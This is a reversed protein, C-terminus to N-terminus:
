PCSREREEKSQAAPIGGHVNRVLEGVGGAPHIELSEQLNWDHLDMLARTLADGWAAAVLTSGMAITEGPDAGQATSLCVFIDCANALASESREGIGVISAGRSRALRCLDVVEKSEGTKSLAVLVDGAQVAGVTGHLADMSHIFMSPTGTVSLLHAMRRAVHSSTGSGTVLVKGQASEIIRVVDVLTGDIQDELQKLAKAEANVARRASDIMAISTSDANNNM